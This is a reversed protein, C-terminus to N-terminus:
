RASTLHELYEQDAHASALSHLTTGDQARHHIDTGASLLREFLALREDRGEQTVSTSRYLVLLMAPNRGLSDLHNPDAKLDLLLHVSDKPFWTVAASLLPTEFEGSRSNIEAGGELLALAMETHGRKLTQYLLPNLEEPLFSEKALLSKVKSLNRTEVALELPGGAIQTAGLYLFAGAVVLAGFTAGPHMKIWRLVKTPESCFALFASVLALLAAVFLNGELEPFLAFQSGGVILGLDLAFLHNLAGLAGVLGAAVFILKAVWKLFPKM